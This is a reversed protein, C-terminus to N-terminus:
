HQAWFRDHIGPQVILLTENQKRSIDYDLPCIVLEDFYSFDDPRCGHSRM